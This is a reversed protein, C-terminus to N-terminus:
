GGLVIRGDKDSVSLKKLRFRDIKSCGTEIDFELAHGPCTLRGNEDPGDAMRYGQHPCRGLLASLCGNRRFILVEQNAFRVAVRGGEALETSPAVDFRESTRFTRDIAVTPVTHPWDRRRKVPVTRSGFRGPASTDGRLLRKGSHCRQVWWFNNEDFTPTGPSVRISLAVRTDNTVNLQTCHLLDTTFILLDGDGNGPRCPQPLLFGEGFDLTGNQPMWYDQTEPFLCLANDRNVGAVGLWVSLSDLPQGQWSDVHSARSRHRGPPAKRRAEVMALFEQLRSPSKSYYTSRLRELLPGLGYRLRYSLPVSGQAPIPKATQPYSVRLVILDQVYFEQEWGLTEQCVAAAWLLWRDRMQEVVYAELLGLREQPFYEHIKALGKKECEDRAARGAFLEIGQIFSEKTGRLIEEKKPYTAFVRM